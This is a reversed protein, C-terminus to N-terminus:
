RAEMRVGFVLAGLGSGVPLPRLRRGLDTCHRLAAALHQIMMSSFM